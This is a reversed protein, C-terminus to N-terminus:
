NHTHYTHYRRYVRYSGTGGGKKQPLGPTNDVDPLTCECVMLFWAMMPGEFLRNSINRYITFPYDGIDNRLGCKNVKTPCAIMRCETSRRTDSWCGGQLRRLMPTVVYEGGKIRSCSLPRRCSGHLEFVLRTMIQSGWRMPASSHAVRQTERL